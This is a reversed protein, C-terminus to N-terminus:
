FEAKSEALIKNFYEEKLPVFDLNFYKKIERAFIDIPFDYKNSDHFCRVPMYRNFRDQIDVTRGQYYLEFKHQKIFESMVGTIRRSETKAFIFKSRCLDLVKSLVESSAGEIYLARGLGKEFLKPLQERIDNRLVNEVSFSFLTQAEVFILQKKRDLIFVHSYWEEFPVCQEQVVALDSPKIGIEKQLKKTVRIIPM